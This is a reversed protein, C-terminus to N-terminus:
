GFCTCAKAKPPGVRMKPPLVERPDEGALSKEIVAVAVPIGARTQGEIRTGLFELRMQANSIMKEATRRANRSYSEDELVKQVALKIDASSSQFKDVKVGAKVHSSISEAWEHQDGFFPVCVMPIGNSISETTSSGGCHSVFCKVTKTQFIAVQPLFKDVYWQDSLKRPLLEQHAEPLAWMIAWPGNDLAEIVNQILEKPPVALTGFAIYILPINADCKEKMWEELDPASDVALSFKSSSRLLRAKPSSKELPLPYFPGTYIEHPKPPLECLVQAGPFLTVPADSEPLMKRGVVPELQKPLDMLNKIVRSARRPYSVLFKFLVLPDLASEPRAM